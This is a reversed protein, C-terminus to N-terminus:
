FRSAIPDDFGSGTTTRKPAFTVTSGAAACRSRENGTKGQTSEDGEDRACPTRIATDMDKGCDGRCAQNGCVRVQPRHVQGDRSDPRTTGTGIQPIVGAGMRRHDPRARSFRM